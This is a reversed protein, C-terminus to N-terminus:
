PVKSIIKFQLAKLMVPLAELLIKKVLFEKDNALTFRMKELFV